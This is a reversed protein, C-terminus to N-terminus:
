GEDDPLDEEEEEKQYKIAVKTFNLSSLMGAIAIGPRFNVKARKILSTEYDDESM